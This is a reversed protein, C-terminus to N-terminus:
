KLEKFCALYKQAIHRPDYVSLDIDKQIKLNQMTEIWEEINYPDEVYTARGQTVEFLSASKTTIVHTGFAMAEVPPMGFGEFISPFLFTKCYKYLSNRELNDVFGTLEINENLNYENILSVLQGRDKGSIGSILLKKPLNLKRDKIVKMVEILVKLNKHPLLSSVTYYYGDNDINYKTIIEDVPLVDNTDILIPNYITEIKNSNGYRQIIDNRVYDSIAIVKNSTKVSNKWNSKLWLVRTKSQYEPYHWAQLDHITTIFKIYKPTFLPKSYVPEFCISINNKKLIRCLNINEWLIRHGINASKINCLIKNFRKDKFYKEFTDQNDESLILYINYEEKLKMFGDLLNRIYSETGGVKKHRVWLLDVAFKM